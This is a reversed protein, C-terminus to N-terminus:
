NCMLLCTMLSLILVISETELGTVSSFSNLIELCNFNRVKVQPVKEFLPMIM